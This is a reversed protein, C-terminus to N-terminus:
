YAYIDTFSTSTRPQLVLWAQNFSPTQHGELAFGYGPIVRMDEGVANATESLVVAAELYYLSGKRSLQWRLIIILCM